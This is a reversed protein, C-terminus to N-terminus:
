PTLIVQTAALSAATWATGDPAKEALYGNQNYYMQAGSPFTIQKGNATQSNFKATIQPAFLYGASRQATFDARVGLIPESAVLGTNAFQVTVPDMSPPENLYPTTQSATTVGLTTSLDSFPTGSDSSTWNPAAASALPAQRVDVPGLRNCQTNDQTDDIFYVDRMQLIWTTTSGGGWVLSAKSDASVFASFDFFVPPQQVGDIWVVIQANLRDFMVEVYQSTNLALQTNNLITQFTNATNSLRLVPMISTNNNTQVRFGVFSRRTTFDSINQYPVALTPNYVGYNANPYPNNGGTLVLWGSSPTITGYNIYYGGVVFDPRLFSPAVTGSTYPPLGDFGWFEKLAM